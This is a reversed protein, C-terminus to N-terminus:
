ENGKELVRAREIIQIVRWRKKKSLPRCEIIKVKDGIKCINQPDHAMFKKRKKIYKKYMSHQALRETLVVVTKEMKDSVVIGVFVKKNGRAEM